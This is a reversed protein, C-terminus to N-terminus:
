GKDILECVRKARYFSSFINPIRLFGEDTWIEICWQCDLLFYQKIEYINNRWKSIAKFHNVNKYVREWKM